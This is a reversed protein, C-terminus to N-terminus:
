MPQKVEAKKFVRLPLYTVQQVNLSPTILLQSFIHSKLIDKQGTQDGSMESKKVFFHRDSGLM